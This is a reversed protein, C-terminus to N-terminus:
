AAALLRARAEFREGYKEAEAVTRFQRRLLVYQYPQNNCRLIVGYANEDDCPYQKNSELFEVDGLISNNRDMM